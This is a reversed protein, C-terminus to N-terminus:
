LPNILIYNNDIKEKLYDRVNYRRYKNSLLILNLITNIYKYDPEDIKESTINNLLYDLIHLQDYIVAMKLFNYHDANYGIEIYYKLIDIRGYMIIQKIIISDPYGFIEQYYRVIDMQNNIISGSRIYYGDANVDAGASILNKVVHILGCNSAWKLLDNINFNNILRCIDINYKKILFNALTNNISYINLMYCIDYTRINILTNYKKSFLKVLLVLESKYMHYCYINDTFAMDYMDISKGIPYSLIFDFYSSAMSLKARDYINLFTTLHIILEIPISNFM